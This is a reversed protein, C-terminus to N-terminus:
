SIYAPCSSDKSPLNLDAATCVLRQNLRVCFKTRLGVDESKSYADLTVCLILLMIDESVNIVGDVAPAVWMM